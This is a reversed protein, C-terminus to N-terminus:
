NKGWAFKGRLKRHPVTKHIHQDYHPYIEYIEETYISTHKDSRAEVYLHTRLFLNECLDIIEQDNPLPANNRINFIVSLYHYSQDLVINPIGEHYLLLIDMNWYYRHLPSNVVQRDPLLCLWFPKSFCYGSLSDEPSYIKIKGQYNLTAFKLLLTEVLPSIRQKM